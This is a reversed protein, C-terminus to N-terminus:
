RPVVRVPPAIPGPDPKAPRTSRSLMGVIAEEAARGAAVSGRNGNSLISFVVREGGATTVYGSLASM